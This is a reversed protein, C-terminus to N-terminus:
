VNWPVAPSVTVIRIDAVVDTNSVFSTDQNTRAEQLNGVVVVAIRRQKPVLQACCLSRDNALEYYQPFVTWMGDDRSAKAVRKPPVM